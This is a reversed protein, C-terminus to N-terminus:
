RRETTPQSGKKKRNHVLKRDQKQPPRIKQRKDQREEKQKPNVEQRRRMLVDSWGIM